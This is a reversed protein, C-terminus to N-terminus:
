LGRGGRDRWVQVDRVLLGRLLRRLPEAAPECEDQEEPRLSPEPVPEPAPDNPQLIAQRAKTLV